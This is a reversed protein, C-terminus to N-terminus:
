YNELILLSFKVFVLDLLLYYTTAVLLRFSCLIYIYDTSHLQVDTCFHRGRFFYPPCFVPHGGSFFTPRHSM